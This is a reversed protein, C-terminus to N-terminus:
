KHERSSLYGRQKHDTIFGCDICQVWPCHATDVGACHHNVSSGKCKACTTALKIM